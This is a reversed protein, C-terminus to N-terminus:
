PETGGAEVGALGADHRAVPLEFAFTAGAGEKSDVWIRGGMATVLGEAIFLGLGTNGTGVIRSGTEGRYFKRFIHEREAAPIGVGEDEVRVEVAGDVLRAAVRVRGGSPSYRVANDLLITLVQRLRDADAVADLGTEPVEAVFRHDNGGLTAEVAQVVESVASAVDTPALQVPVDGSELRAVSLLTDVITTLRESESAIYQLFTRREDEGFQVDQRLLTEAFGYISTLPTRLEHSVASVFETKMQEVVREDSIDRFAFIRGAVAGAPDTMVAETVSLWADEAGRRIPVLRGPSLAGGDEVPLPVGLAQAPPRGVAEDAPVGTIREAATNWLVVNGERDVAVIGDAVNALIAESQGKELAVRQYLEANSLAASANGALALLADIEERLWERPRDDLAALVGQVNGETGILPVGLYSRYGGKALLPDAEARGDDVGIEAIAAPERSQVIEGGVSATSHTRTGIVSEAGPGAASHVVLEDGELLRVSAGETDLLASVQRPLEDLVVAPDLEEALTRGTAALQQALARTRREFEYQESRELAGRAAVAVQEALELDDDTFRRREGFFVVVLGNRGSRPEVVPLALLSRAGAAEAAARWDAFRDDEAVDVSALVRHEAAALRLAGATTGDTLLDRVAPRLEHAGALQLTAGVPKLLAASDGGLADCAAQAVADLTEEASLSEGLVSAIRFFGRQVRAQRASEELAEANRLAIGALGGFADLLTLDRESFRDHELSCVGLVGRVEGGAAIPAEMVEAFRAFTARPPPVETESFRRKLAPAQTEVVLRQTGELPILRGVETEPLNNVARCRLRRGDDELIWCDAADAGLLQSVEDVIRRIVAEFGRESALAQGADLLAEQEALRRRNEDLLRATTIALGAERAVAEALAEAGAAWSGARPRHLSLVGIAEGQVDIPTALVSRSGLALLFERGEEDLREDAEVDDVIVTQRSQGALNAVPLLPSRGGLPEFGEAIWESALTEGLRVQSRSLHLATALEGVAVALVRDVDLESRLDWAIRAILRERDLAEALAAASRLREFALAAEATLAGLVELEESSFVRQSAAGAVLVGAVRDPTQLPVFAASRIGSREVLRRSVRPSNVADVVAFAERTSAASAVGSPEGHLEITTGVLWDIRKGDQFAEVFRATAGDDDVLALAALDVGLVDIAETVLLQAIDEGRPAVVLERSLRAVAEVERERTTSMAEAERARRSGTLAQRREPWHALFLIAPLFAFVIPVFALLPHGAIPDREVLVLVGLVAATLGICPFLLATAVEVEGLRRWERLFSPALAIAVALYLAALILLPVANFLVAQTEANV